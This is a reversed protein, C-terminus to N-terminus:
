HGLISYRIEEEHKNQLQHEIIYKFCVADFIKKSKNAHNTERCILDLNRRAEELTMQQNKVFAINALLLDINNDTLTFQDGNCAPDLLRPLKEYGTSQPLPAPIDESTKSSSSEVPNEGTIFFLKNFMEDVEQDFKDRKSVPIQCDSEMYNYYKMCYYLFFKQYNDPMRPQLEYIKLHKNGNESKPFVVKIGGNVRPKKDIKLDAEAEIKIIGDKEFDEMNANGLYSKVYAGVQLYSSNEAIIPCDCPAPKAAENDKKQAETRKCALGSILPLLLLFPIPKMKM